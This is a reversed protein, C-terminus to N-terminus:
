VKDEAYKDKIVSTRWEENFVTDLYSFGKDPFLLLAVVEESENLGGLYKKAASYSAGSSGGVFLSNEKLLSMCGDIIEGHTLIIHEVDSERSIFGSIKSAGIGSIFRKTVKSCFIQSGEIDVAIIEIKPYKEKLYESLGKYTGCSSVAVFVYDLREFYNKIEEALTFYGKFNNENEYQNTWFSGPKSSLLYKVMKIRNLLFGGTDDLADVMVVEDSILELLKLNISNINPDVVAIFKLGLRQCHLAASIAFNGSSSEIITTSSNIEGSLVGQYLIENVARDKISGSFNQYELKAFLNFRNDLLSVVPTQGIMKRIDLIESLLFEKNKM